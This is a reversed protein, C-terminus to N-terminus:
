SNFLENSSVPTVVVEIERAAFRFVLVSVLLFIFVNLLVMGLGYLMSPTQAWPTVDEMIETIHWNLRVSSRIYGLLSMTTAILFALVFLAIAGSTPLSGWRIPGIITAEKLMKYTLFFGLMLASMAALFQPFALAVRANAPIMMGYVGLFLLVAEAVAFLSILAINGWRRWSITMIKNCRKFIIFCLGLVLIMTNIATNKASMTGYYGVIPHQTGGM